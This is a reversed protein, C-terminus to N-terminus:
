NGSAKRKEGRFMRARCSFRKFIYGGGRLFDTRRVRGCLERDSGEGHGSLGLVRRGPEVEGM